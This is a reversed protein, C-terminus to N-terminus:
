FGLRFFATAGRFEQTTGVRIGGDMQMGQSGTSVERNAKRTVIYADIASLLHNLIIASVAFEKDTSLTQSRVRLKDFKKQEDRSTWRWQENPDRILEDMRGERIAQDNYLDATQYQGVSAFYAEDNRRNASAGARTIAYNEMDTRYDAAYASLGVYGGWLIAESATFYRGVDYRGVYAEGLGPAAASLLAAVLPSRQERLEVSQANGASPLTMAILVSLTLVQLLSRM